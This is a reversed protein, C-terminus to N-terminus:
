APIKKYVVEQVYPVLINAMITNNQLIAQDHAKNIMNQDPRRSIPLSVLLKTIEPNNTSFSRQFAKDVSAKEPKLQNEPRNIILEVIAKHGSFTADILVNNVDEQNLHNRDLALCWMKFKYREVEGMEYNTTSSVLHMLISNLILM